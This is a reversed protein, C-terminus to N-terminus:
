LIRYCNPPSISGYTRKYYCRLIFHIGSDISCHYNSVPLDALLYVLSSALIVSSLIAFIKQLVQRVPRSGIGLMKMVDKTLLADPYELAEAIAEASLKKSESDVHSYVSSTTRM